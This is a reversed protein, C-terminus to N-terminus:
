GGADPRSPQGTPHEPLSHHTERTELLIALREARARPDRSCREELAQYAELHTDSLLHAAATQYPELRYKVAHEKTWGYASISHYPQLIADSASLDDNGGAADVLKVPDNPM